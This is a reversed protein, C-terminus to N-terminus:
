QRSQNKSEVLHISRLPSHVVCVEGGKQAHYQVVYSGTVAVMTYIGQNSVVILLVAKGKQQM